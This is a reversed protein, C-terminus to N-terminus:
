VDPRKRHRYQDLRRWEGSPMQEENLVVFETDGRREITQRLHAKEGFIEVVKEFRDWQPSTTVIATGGSDISVNVWRRTVRDYTSFGLDQTGHPYTGVYQQWTGGVAPSIVAIGHDLREPTTPTAFVTAEVDWTGILWDIAHLEQPQQDLAALEPHAAVKAAVREYFSPQAPPHYACAALVFVAVLAAYPRIM